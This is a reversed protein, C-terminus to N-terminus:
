VNDRVNHNDQSTFYCNTQFVTKKVSLQKIKTSGISETNARLADGVLRCFEIFLCRTKPKGETVLHKKTSMELPFDTLYYQKKSNVVRQISGSDLFILSFLYSIEYVFM